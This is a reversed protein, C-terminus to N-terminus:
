WGWRRRRRFPPRYGFAPYVRRPRNVVVVERERVPMFTGGQLVFFILIVILAVGLIGSGNQM